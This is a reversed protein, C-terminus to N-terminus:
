TEKEMSFIVTDRKDRRAKQVGMLDLKYRALERDAAKLSGARCLSRVGLYWIEHGM